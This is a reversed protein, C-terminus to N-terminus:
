LHSHALGGRGLPGSHPATDTNVTYIHSGYMMAQCIRNVIKVNSAAWYPDWTFTVPLFTGNM